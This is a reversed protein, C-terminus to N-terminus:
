RSQSEARERALQELYLKEFRDVAAKYGQPDVFTGSKHKRQMDYHSAHAAVWIEPALAKQARFTKAFDDIIEPYKPNKVLPMVVSGM